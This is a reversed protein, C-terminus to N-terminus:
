WRNHSSMILVFLPFQNALKIKIKIKKNCTVQLCALTVAPGALFFLIFLCFFLENQGRDSTLVGLM